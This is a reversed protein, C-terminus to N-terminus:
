APVMDFAAADIGEAAVDYALEVLVGNPDHIFIQAIRGGGVLRTDYAVGFRDLRELMDRYGSAALGVHDLGDGMADPVTRRPADEASPSLHVIAVDGAYLWYGHEDFPPRFGIELGLVDCFFERTEEMKLTRINIHNLMDIKM